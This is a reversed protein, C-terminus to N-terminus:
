APRRSTIEGLLRAMERELDNVKAATEEATGPTASGAPGAENGDAFDFPARGNSDAARRMFAPPAEDDDATMPPLDPFLPPEAAMPEFQVITAVPAVPAPASEARQPQPQPARRAPSFPREIPQPAAPQHPPPPPQHAAPTPASAQYTESRFPAAPQHVRSQPFPIPPNDVPPVLEAPPEGATPAAQPKAVPRTRPRQIAQEVVLDSPGGILILHEINDRRVLVLRRRGDVAMADVIALRPVRGRGIRGLGGSSYRRVLWYVVAILGLVVVISITVQLILGGWEGFM